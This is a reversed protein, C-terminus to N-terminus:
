PQWLLAVRDGTKVRSAVNRQRVKRNLTRNVIMAAHKRSQVGAPNCACVGLLTPVLVGLSTGGKPDPQM